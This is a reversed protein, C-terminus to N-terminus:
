AVHARSNEMYEISKRLKAMTDTRLFHRVGCNEYTSSGSIGTFFLLRHLATCQAGDDHRHELHTLSGHGLEPQARPPRLRQHADV